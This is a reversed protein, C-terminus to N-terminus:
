RVGSSPNSRALDGGPRGDGEHLFAGGPGAAMEWHTPASQQYHNSAIRPVCYTVLNGNADEGQPCVLSSQQPAACACLPLALLFLALKKM